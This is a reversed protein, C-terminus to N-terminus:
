VFKCVFLVSLTSDACLTTWFQKYCNQGLHPKKASYLKLIESNNYAFRLQFSSNRKRKKWAQLILLLVPAPGISFSVCSGVKLATRFGSFCGTKVLKLPLLSLTPLFFSNSLLIGTQQLKAFKQVKVTYGTHPQTHTHTHPPLSYHQLLKLSSLLAHKHLRRAFWVQMCVHVCPTIPPFLGRVGTCTFVRERGWACATLLWSDVGAEWSM